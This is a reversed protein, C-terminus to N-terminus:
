MIICKASAPLCGYKKKRQDTPLPPPSPPRRISPGWANASQIGGIVIANGQLRPVQLSGSTPSEASHFSENSQTSRHSEISQIGSSSGQLRGFNTAVSKFSDQGFSQLRESGSSSRAMLRSTKGTVDTVDCSQLGDLQFSTGESNRAVLHDSEGDTASNAVARRLMAGGFIPQHLYVLREPPSPPLSPVPKRPGLRDSPRPELHLSPGCLAATAALALVAAAASAVNALQMKNTTLDEWSTAGPHLARLSPAHVFFRYQRVQWERHGGSLPRNPSIFLYMGAVMTGLFTQLWKAIAVHVRTVRGVCDSMGRCCLRPM